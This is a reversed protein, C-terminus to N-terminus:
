YQVHLYVWRKWADDKADSPWLLAAQPSVLCSLEVAVQGALGGSAVLERRAVESFPSSSSLASTSSSSAFDDTDGKNEEGDSKSTKKSSLNKEEKQDRRIAAAEEKDLAAGILATARKVCDEDSITKPANTMMVPVGAMTADLNLKKALLEAHATAAAM